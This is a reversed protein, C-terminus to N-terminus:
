GGSRGRESRSGIRATQGTFQGRTMELADVDRLARREFVARQYPHTLAEHVLLRPAFRLDAMLERKVPNGHRLRDLARVPRPIKECPQVRECQCGRAARHRELGQDRFQFM